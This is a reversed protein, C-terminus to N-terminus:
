RAAEGDLRYRRTWIRNEAILKENERYVDRVLTELEAVRSSHHPDDGLDETEERDSDLDFLYRRLSDFHQFFKYRGIRVGASRGGNATAFFARPERDGFRRLLSQGIFPNPVEIGLRDLITPGIDALQRVETEVGKELKWAEGLLAM